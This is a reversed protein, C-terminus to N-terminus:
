PSGTASQPPCPTAPFRAQFAACASTATAAFNPTETPAPTSTPALQTIVTVGCTACVPLFGPTSPCVQTSSPCSGGETTTFWGTAWLAYTATSTLLVGALVGLAAAYILRRDRSPRSPGSRRVPRNPRTDDMRFGQM